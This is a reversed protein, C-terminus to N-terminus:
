LQDLQAQMEDIRSQNLKKIFEFVKDADGENVLLYQGDVDYQTKACIWVDTNSEIHPILENLETAEKLKDFLAQALVIQEKTM